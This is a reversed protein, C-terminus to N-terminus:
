SGPEREMEALELWGVQEARRLNDWDGFSCSNCPHNGQSGAVVGHWCWPCGPNVSPEEAVAAASGTKMLAAYCGALFDAEAHRGSLRLVARAPAIVLVALLRVCFRDWAAAFRRDLNRIRDIM